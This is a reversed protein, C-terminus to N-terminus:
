QPRARRVLQRSYGDKVEAEYENLLADIEDRRGLRKMVGALRCADVYGLPSRIHARLLALRAPDDISGLSPLWKLWLLDKQAGTLQAAPIQEVAAILTAADRTRFLPGLAEGITAGPAHNALRQHYLDAALHDLGLLNILRLVKSWDGSAEALPTERRLADRLDEGAIPRSECPARPAARLVTMLPDGITAVRWPKLEWVRAAVLYPVNALLRESLLDPTVFAALTPEHVSGVYAYAGRELWRGALTNRNAPAICSWSHVFHVVAPSNLIPVDHVFVRREDAADFWNQNGKTNVFILDRALGGPALYEWAAATSAPAATHIVDFGVERFRAAPRDMAYRSWVALDPYTDYLLASGPRLFISCMAMYTARPGDGFISGAIAWRSDDAHRCLGDTTANRSNGNPDDTTVYKVPLDRVITVTDIEDGLERYSYGTEAVRSEVAARLRPWDDLSVSGNPTGFRDDLFVLPQGRDAALALAAPWAGDRASTIVVGPPTWGAAAFAEKAGEPPPPSSEPSADEARGPAWAVAAAHRMATELDGGRPMAAPSASKRIVEAPAFRRIFMPAYFDDEFLVPWRGALSWESIAELYTLEDPVLVVRDVTPIKARLMAVKVGPRVAWPLDSLNVTRNSPSQEPPADAPRSPSAPTTAPPAAPAGAEGAGERPASTQGGEGPRGCAACFLAAVCAIGALTQRRHSVRPRSMMPHYRHALGSHITEPNM